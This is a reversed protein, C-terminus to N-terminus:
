ATSFLELLLLFFLSISYKYRISSEYCNFHRGAERNGHQFSYEVIALKEKATFSNNRRGMELSNFISYSKLQDTNSNISVRAGRGGGLELGIDTRM